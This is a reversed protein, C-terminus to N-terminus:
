LSGAILAALEALEVARAADTAVAKESEARLRECLARSRYERGGEILVRRERAPRDKLSNWLEELRGEEAPPAPEPSVAAAEAFASVLVTHLEETLTRTVDAIDGLTDEGLPTGGLSRGETTALALDVLPLMREVLSFPVGVAAALRELTQRRPLKEGREYSWILRQHTGAAMALEDQTWGRLSRLLRVIVGPVTVKRSTAM